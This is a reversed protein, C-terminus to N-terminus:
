FAHFGCKVSNCSDAPAHGKSVANLSHNKVSFEKVHILLYNIKSLFGGLFVVVYIHLYTGVAVVLNIKSLNTNYVTM